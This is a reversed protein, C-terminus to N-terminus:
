DLFFLCPQLRASAGVDWCRVQRFLDILRVKRLDAEESLRQFVNTGFAVPPLSMKEPEEPTVLGTEPHDSKITGNGSSKAEVSWAIQSEM